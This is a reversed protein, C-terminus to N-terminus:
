DTIIKISKNIAELLDKRQAPNFTDALINTSETMRGVTLGDVVTQAESNTYETLTQVVTIPTNPTVTLGGDSIVPTIPIVTSSGGPNGPNSPNNFYNIILDKITGKIEILSQNIFNYDNLVEPTVSPGPLVFLFYVFFLGSSILAIQRMLHSEDAPLDNLAENIAERMGSKVENKIQSISDKLVPELEKKIQTSENLSEVSNNFTNITEKFYTVLKGWLNKIIEIYPELLDYYLSYTNNIPTTLDTFYFIVLVSGVLSIFLLVKIVNKLLILVKNEKFVSLNSLLSLIPLL